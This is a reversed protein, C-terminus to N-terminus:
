ETRNWQATKLTVGHGTHVGGRSTAYSLVTTNHHLVAYCQRLMSSHLGWHEGRDNGGKVCSQKWMLSWRWYKSLLLSSGGRLSWGGCREVVAWDWQLPEASHPHRSRVLRAPLPTDTFSLPINFCWHRSLPWHLVILDGQLPPNNVHYAWKMRFNTKLRSVPVWLKQETEKEEVNEEKGFPRKSKTSVSIVM